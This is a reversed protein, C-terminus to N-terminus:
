PSFSLLSEDIGSIHSSAIEGAKDYGHPDLCINNSTM